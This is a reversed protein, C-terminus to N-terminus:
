VSSVVKYWNEDDMYAVKNPIVYSGEPLGYKAVLNNGRLMPHVKTGKSLFIVPGNM